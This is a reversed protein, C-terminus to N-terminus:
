PRALDNDIFPFDYKFLKRLFLNDFIKGSNKNKVINIDNYKIAESKLVGLSIIVRIKCPFGGKGADHNIYAM